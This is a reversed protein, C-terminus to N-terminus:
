LGSGFSSGAEQKNDAGLSIGRVLYRLDGSEGTIDFDQLISWQRSILYRM